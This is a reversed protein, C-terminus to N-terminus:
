RPEEAILVQGALVGEFRQVKGSPWRIEVEDSQASTGLGFFVRPTTVRYIAAAAVYRGCKCGLGPACAPHSRRRRRPQERRRGHSRGLLQARRGHRQASALSACQHPSVAIDLDGDNDCDGLAMGRSSQLAGLGAAASVEAFGAAGDNRFLQNPQAYTTEAFFNWMTTLTAM